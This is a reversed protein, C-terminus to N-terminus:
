QAPATTHRVAPVASSPAPAEPATSSSRPAPSVAPELALSWALVDFPEGDFDLTDLPTITM